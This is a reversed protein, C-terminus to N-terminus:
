EKSPQKKRGRMAEIIEFRERARQYADEMDEEDDLRDMEQRLISEFSSEDLEPFVDFFEIEHIAESDIDNGAIYGDVIDDMQEDLLDKLSLELLLPDNM